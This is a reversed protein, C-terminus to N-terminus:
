KRFLGKGLSAKREQLFDLLDQSSKYHKMLIRLGKLANQYEPHGLVFRELEAEQREPLEGALYKLLTKIDPPSDM